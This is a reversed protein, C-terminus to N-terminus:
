LYGTSIRDIKYHEIQALPGLSALLHDFTAFYRLDKELFIKNEKGSEVPCAIHLHQVIIEGAQVVVAIVNGAQTGEGSGGDKNATSM